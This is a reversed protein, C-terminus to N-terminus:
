WGEDGDYYTHNPALHTAVKGRPLCTSVLPTLLVHLLVLFMFCLPLHCVLSGM